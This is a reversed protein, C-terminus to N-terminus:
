TSPISVVTIFLLLFLFLLICSEFLYSRNVETMFKGMSIAEYRHQAVKFAEECTEDEKRLKDYLAQVGSAQNEKEDLAKQDQISIYAM